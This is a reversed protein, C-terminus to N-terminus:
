FLGYSILQLADITFFYTLIFAAILFPAFPIESKMTLPRGFIRLGIKGRKLLTQLGIMILSVLAGIWFSWMVMSVVGSLGVWIGLPFALKADGLGIWRGQSIVWLFVFPGAAAAGAVVRWGAEPLQETLVFQHLLMLVSLGILAVVFENPIITHYYDYVVIAALVTLFFATLMQMILDTTSLAALLFVSGVLLEVLFYRPPIYSRCRRCKGRLVLYSFLPVLEYWELNLQCSLCHSSGGLSKGTHFRYLYVNLFSGFIIGILFVYALYIPSGLFAELMRKNYRVGCVFFAAM